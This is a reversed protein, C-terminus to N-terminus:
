KARSLLSDSSAPRSATKNDVQTVVPTGIEDCVRLQYQWRQAWPETQENQAVKLLILNEGQKLKVKAVYQDVEMGSHYVHNATVFEGNVWLKTANICGYRIDVERATPSVVTAAAYAIAGKHKDLATTLDVTGLEDATTHAKWAVEGKQGTYKAKLDVVKEPEYAVDWGKDAGNEFPGIIQWNMLFGMHKAIDVRPAFSEGGLEKAKTAAAQIQDLDRANVFIKAYAEAADTKKDAKALAEAKALELAIADRRLELSPDELMQPILRSEADLDVSALVEYALRRARPHHKVELLFKEVEKLPIKGGAKTAVAEVCGRLWNLALPNAGDMAALLEPLQKPDAKQLAAAAAVADPHGKGEVGVAKVKQALKAIDVQQASTDQVMVPLSAVIM